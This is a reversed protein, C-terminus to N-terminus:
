YFFSSFWVNEYCTLISNSNIVFIRLRPM